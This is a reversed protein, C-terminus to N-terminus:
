VKNDGVCQWLKPLFERIYIKCQPGMTLAITEVLSVATTALRGNSETLRQAIEHALDGLSGTIYKAEKFIDELKGIAEM